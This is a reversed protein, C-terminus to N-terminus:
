NKISKIIETIKEPSIKKIADEIPSTAEGKEYLRVPNDSFHSIINELLKEHMNSSLSTAEQKYGQYAMAVASKYLYDQRLKSAHGFQRGSFWALWILPSVIIVKLLFAPLINENLKANLIDAEVMFGASVISVLSLIFVCSWMVMSLRLGKAMVSFSNAMGYQNASTFITDISGKRIECYEYTEDIDKLYQEHKKLIKEFDLNRSDFEELMINTRKTNESITSSEMSLVQNIYAQSDAKVKSTYGQIDDEVSLLVKEVILDHELNELEDKFLNLGKNLLKFEEADVGHEILSGISDAYWNLYSFIFNSNIVVGTNHHRESEAVAMTINENYCWKEIYSIVKRAHCSSEYFFAQLNESPNLRSRSEGVDLESDDIDFKTFRRWGDLSVSSYLRKVAYRLRILLDNNSKSINLNDGKNKLLTSVDYIVLKLIYDM